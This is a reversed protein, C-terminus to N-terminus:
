LNLEALKEAITGSNKTLYQKREEWRKADWIEVWRGLGLFVVEHSIQSYNVLNQPLVFRGQKDLEVEIAGGLLFRTTDRVSASVFPGSAAEGTLDKWQDLSVMILCGEYGHTVILKNGLYERFKKPVAVRNKEGLNNKYEGILM